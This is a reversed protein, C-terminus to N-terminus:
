LPATIDVFKLREPTAFLPIRPTPLSHHKQLKQAVDFSKQHPVRGKNYKRDCPPNATAHHLQSQVAKVEAATKALLSHIEDLVADPASRALRRKSRTTRAQEEALEEQEVWFINEEEETMPKDLSSNGWASQSRTRRPQVDAD